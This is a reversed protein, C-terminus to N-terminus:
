FLDSHSGTREFRLLDDTIKYIILWDPEMHADRYGKYNGQLQHDKYVVPLPLKDNILLTMIVKLKNMDKHRKQAKKVDKQFQGSYEIERQKTM